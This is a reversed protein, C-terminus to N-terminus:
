FLLSSLTARAKSVRPDGPPFVDFLGILHVRARERDDGSTRRIAGLLRDFGEEIRGTAVDIDAVRSQADVDGPHEAAERRVQAEDYSSM